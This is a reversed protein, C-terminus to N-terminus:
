TYIYKNHITILDNTFFLLMLKNDFGDYIYQIYICIQEIYKYKYHTNITKYYEYLFNYIDLLSYGEDFLKFLIKTANKVNNTKIFNNYEIYTKTDIIVIYKTIDDIINQKLLKLKNFLNYIFYPSINKYELLPTMDFVISENESINTIIEKYQETTLDEFYIPTTRTQIIENIKNTNECGFIFFTNVSNDMLIKLYQQNTENIIDFNDIILFKKYSSKNKCFTNIDNNTTSINIDNFCDLILIHQNYNYIHQNNYYKKVILHIAVSKFTIPSGILLLNMNQSAMNNKIENLIGEKNPMIISDLDKPLYKHEILEM